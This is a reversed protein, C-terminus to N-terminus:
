RGRRWRRRRRSGRLLGGRGDTGDDATDHAADDHKAATAEQAGAHGLIGGDGCAERRGGRLVDLGTTSAVGAGHLRRFPKPGDSRSRAKDPMGQARHTRQRMGHTNEDGWGGEEWATSHEM